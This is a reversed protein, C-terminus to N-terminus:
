LICVVEVICIVFLVSKFSVELRNKVIKLWAALGM